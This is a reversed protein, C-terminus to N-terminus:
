RGICHYSHNRGRLKGTKKEPPPKYVKMEVGDYRNLGDATAIWMFGQKDKMISYVTSQSLGNM